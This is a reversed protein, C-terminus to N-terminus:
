RSLLEIYPQCSYNRNTKQGTMETVIGLDELVTVAATATPFHRHGYRLRRGDHRFGIEVALRPRLCLPSPGGIPDIAEPGVTRRQARM